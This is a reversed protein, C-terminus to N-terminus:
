DNGMNDLSVYSKAALLLNNLSVACSDCPALNSFVEILVALKVCLAVVFSRHFLNEFQEVACVTFFLLENVPDTTIIQARCSDAPMCPDTIHSLRNFEAKSKVIRENLLNFDSIELHQDLIPVPVKLHGLGM